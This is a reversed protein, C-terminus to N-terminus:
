FERVLELSTEVDWTERTTPTPRPFDSGITWTVAHLTTKRREVVGTATRVAADGKVDWEELQRGRVRAITAGRRTPDAVFILPTKRRDVTRTGKSKVTAALVADKRGRVAIEEVVDGLSQPAPVLSRANVRDAALPRKTEWTDRASSGDAPLGQFFRRALDEAAADSEPSPPMVVFTRTPAFPSAPADPRATVPEDPHPVEIGAVIVSGASTVTAGITRGVFPFTGDTDPVDSDFVRRTGDPLFATGHARLVMLSVLLAGDDRTERLQVGVDWEVVATTKRAADKADPGGDEVLSGKETYRYLYTRKPALHLVLPASAKGAPADDASSTGAGAIAAVVFALAIRPSV